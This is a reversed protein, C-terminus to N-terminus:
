TESIDIRQDRVVKKFEQLNILSDQDLDATALAKEFSLYGKPGKSALRKAIRHLINEISKTLTTSKSVRSTRSQVENRNVERNM